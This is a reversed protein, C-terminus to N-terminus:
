QFISLQDNYYKLIVRCLGFSLKKGDDGLINIINTIQKNKNTKAIYQPIEQSIIFCSQM